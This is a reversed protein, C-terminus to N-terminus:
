VEGFRDSDTPVQLPEMGFRVEQAAIQAFLRFDLPPITAHLEFQESRDSTSNLINAWDKLTTELLKRFVSLCLPRYDILTEFPHVAFEAAMFKNGAIAKSNGVDG